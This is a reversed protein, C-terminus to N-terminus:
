WSKAPEMTRSGASCIPRAGAGTKASAARGTFRATTTPWGAIMCTWCSAGPGPRPSTGTPWGGCATALVALSLLGALDPPTQTARAEARVVNGLWTPLVEDPFRPLNHSSFPTPEPWPREPPATEPRVVELLRDTDTQGSKAVILAARGNVPTADLAAQILRTWGPDITALQDAALTEGLLARVFSV